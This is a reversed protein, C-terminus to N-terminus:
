FGHHEYIWNSWFVLIPFAALATSLGFLVVDVKSEHLLVLMFGEILAIFPSSVLSVMAWAFSELDYAHAESISQVHWFAMSPILCLLLVFYKKVSCGPGQETEESNPSDLPM